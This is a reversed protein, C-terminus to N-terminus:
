AIIFCDANTIAPAGVLTAFHVASSGIGSGDPDYYLKGMTSDYIIRDSPDHASTACGHIEEM